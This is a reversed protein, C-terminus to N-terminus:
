GDEKLLLDTGDQLLIRSTGDELLIFFSGVPPTEDSLVRKNPLSNELSIIM